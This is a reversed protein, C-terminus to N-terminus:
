VISFSEFLALTTRSTDWNPLAIRTALRVDESRNYSQRCPGHSPKARPVHRRESAKVTSSLLSQRPEAFIPASLLGQSAVSQAEPDGGTLALQGWAPIGVQSDFLILSGGAKKGFYRASPLAGM